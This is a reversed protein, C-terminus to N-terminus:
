VRTKALIRATTAPRINAFAPSFMVYLALTVHTYFHLIAELIGVLYLLRSPILFLYYTYTRTYFSRTSLEFV